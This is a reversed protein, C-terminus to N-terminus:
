ALEVTRAGLRDPQEADHSTMVVCKERGCFATLAHEVIHTAQPDLAATPEDLLLVDPDRVMALALAARSREGTSLEAISAALRKPGLGLDIIHEAHPHEIISPQWFAPEASVFCVRKRWQPAAFSLQDKGDLSVEGGGPDLDALRRLLLTKGAGSAGRIVVIEGRPVVISTETGVATRVQNAKLM